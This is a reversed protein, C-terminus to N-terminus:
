ISSMYFLAGGGWGKALRVDELCCLMVAKRPVEGGIKENSAGEGQGVGGGGWTGMKRDHM